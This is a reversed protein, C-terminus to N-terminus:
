AAFFNNASCFSSIQNIKLFYSATFILKIFNWYLSAILNEIKVYTAVNIESLFEYPAM